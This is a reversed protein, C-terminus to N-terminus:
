ISFLATWEILGVFKPSRISVVKVSARKVSVTLAISEPCGFLGPFRDHETSVMVIQFSVESCGSAVTERWLECCGCTGSCYICWRGGLDSYIVVRIHVRIRWHSCMGVDCSFPPRVLGLVHDM